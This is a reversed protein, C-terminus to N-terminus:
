PERPPSPESFTRLRAWRCPMPARFRRPTGLEGRLVRERENDQIAFMNEWRLIFYFGVLGKKVRPEIVLCPTFSGIVLYSPVRM